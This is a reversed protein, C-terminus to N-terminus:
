QKEYISITVPISMINAVVFYIKDAFFNYYTLNPTFEKIKKFKERQLKRVLDKKPSQRVYNVNDFDNTVIVYKPFTSNQASVVSYEYITKLNNNHQKFYFEKLVFDPLM